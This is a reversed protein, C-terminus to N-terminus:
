KPAAPQHMSHWHTVGERKAFGDRMSPMLEFRGDDSCSVIGQMVQGNFLVWLIATWNGGDSSVQACDSPAPRITKPKWNM